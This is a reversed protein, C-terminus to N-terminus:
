VAVVPVRAAKKMNSQSLMQLKRFQLRKSLVSAQPIAHAMGTVPIGAKHKLKCEPIDAEEM